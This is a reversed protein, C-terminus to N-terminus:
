EVPTYEVRYEPVYKIYSREVPVQEEWTNSVFKRPSRYSIVHEPEVYEREREYKVDTEQKKITSM